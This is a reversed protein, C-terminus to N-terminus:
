KVAKDKARQAIRMWPGLFETEDSDAVGNMLAHIGGCKTHGMVVINEVKLGKWIILCCNILIKKKKYLLSLGKVAFELAASIGHHSKDPQYPAVLNAVNRM